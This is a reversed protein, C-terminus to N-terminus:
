SNKETKFQLLSSSLKKRIVKYNQSTENLNAYHEAFLYLGDREDGTLLIRNFSHIRRVLSIYPESQFLNVIPSGEVESLEKSLFTILFFIVIMGTFAIGLRILLTRRDIDKFYKM